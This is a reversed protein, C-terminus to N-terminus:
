RDRKAPSEPESSPRFAHVLSCVVAINVAFFLLGAGCVHLFVPQGLFEIKYAWFLWHLQMRYLHHPAVRSGALPLRVESALWSVALAAASWRSLALQPLVVALPALSWVFYQAGHLV